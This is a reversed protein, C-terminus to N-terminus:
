SQLYIKKLFFSSKLTQTEKMSWVHQNKLLIYIPLFSLLSEHYFRIFQLFFNANKIIYKFFTDCSNIIGLIHLSSFFDVKLNYDHM